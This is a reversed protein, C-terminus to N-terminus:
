AEKPVFGGMGRVFEIESQTAEEVSDVNAEGVEHCAKNYGDEEDTALILRVGSSTKVNCIM